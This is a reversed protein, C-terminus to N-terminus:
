AQEPPELLDSTLRELQREIRELRQTLEDTEHEADTSVFYSAINATIVSVGSIGALM